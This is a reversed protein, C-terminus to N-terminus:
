GYVSDYYKLMAAADGAAVHRGNKAEYRYHDFQWEMRRDYGCNSCHKWRGSYYRYTAAVGFRPCAGRKKDTGGGKGAYPLRKRLRALRIVLPDVAVASLPAAKVTM